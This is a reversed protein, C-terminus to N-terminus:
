APSIAPRAHAQVRQPGLRLWKAVGGYSSDPALHQRAAAHIKTELKTRLADDRLVTAVATSFDAPTTACLVSEELFSMGQLGVPTTVCAKGHGAAEVLKIKMGTGRLLPVVVLAAEAYEPALDALRGRVVVNRPPETIVAGVAGCVHLSADPSERLVAPWVERLFWRLGEENPPNRGGVFLCRGPVVRAATARTPVPASKPVVLVTKEPHMGRFVEADSDSIALVVDARKLLAAEGAPTAPNLETPVDYRAAGTLPLRHSAVDHTLVLKRAGSADDLLPALWCYNALVSDPRTKEFTKRFLSTETRSPLAAWTSGGGSPAQTAKSGRRAFRRRFLPVTCLAKKVLNLARAKLPLWWIAPFIRLRFFRFANPYHLRAVRNFRRPVILWGNRFASSDPQLWLVDIQAGASKLYALLDFLYAGAGDNEPLPCHRTVVLLRHQPRLM